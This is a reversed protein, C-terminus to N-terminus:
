CSIGGATLLCTVQPHVLLNQGWTHLISLFGIAAGLHEPNAAVELLTEASARFLLGYILKKNQLALASFEHPLTFVVHFYGVPLIEGQRQAVWRNREATQCKPCHRDRCSNYSIAIEHGCGPCKDRHGGLAATRCRVVANLVKVHSCHLWPRSKELFGAIRARVIDAVELPPPNMKQSEKGQGASRDFLHGSNRGAPQRRSQSAEALSASLHGYRPHRCPRATESHQPPRRRSGVSTDRLLTSPHASSRAQHHRCATRGRPLRALRDQELDVRHGEAVGPFMYTVPKMWRWYERLAERLKPSLPVNRDRQGKGQRIHVLMLEKDIDSAKLQVLEGCRMGTSYLTMLMTRYLLNPAAEILRTVEEPSLVTPLRLPVKPFPIHELMYARQLTKVFFFRLAATRQAVSNGSLKRASFLHAQFERIQEPGLQDPSRHFYQAFEGVTRLYAKTTLQSYNRRQLEELMKKRLHTM